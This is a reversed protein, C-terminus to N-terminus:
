KVQSKGTGTAGLVIILPKQPIKKAMAVDKFLQFGRRLM